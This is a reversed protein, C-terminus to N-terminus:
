NRDDVDDPGLTRGRTVLEPKTQAVALTRHPM